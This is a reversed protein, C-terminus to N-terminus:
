NLPCLREMEERDRREKGKMQREKGNGEKVRGKAQRLRHVLNWWFQAIIGWKIADVEIELIAAAAKKFIPRCKRKPIKSSLMSKKTQTGIIMLIPHYNGM